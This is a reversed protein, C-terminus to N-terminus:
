RGEIPLYAILPLAGLARLGFLPKKTAENRVLTSEFTDVFM